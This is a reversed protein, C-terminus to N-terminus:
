MADPTRSVPITASSNEYPPALEGAACTNMLPPGSDHTIM